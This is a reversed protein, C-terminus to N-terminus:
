TRGTGYDRLCHCCHCKLDAAQEKIGSLNYKFQTKLMIKKRTTQQGKTKTLEGKGGSNQLVKHANLIAPLFADHNFAKSGM